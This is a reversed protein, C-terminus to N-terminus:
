GKKDVFVNDLKIDNHARGNQHIYGLSEVMQALVYRVLPDEFREASVFKILDGGQAFELLLYSQQDIMNGREM